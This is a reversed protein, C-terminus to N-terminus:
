ASFVHISFLFIIKLTWKNPGYQPWILARNQNNRCYIQKYIGSIAWIKMLKGNDLGYQTWTQALDHSNEVIDKSTSAQFPEFKWQLTMCVWYLVVRYNEIFQSWILALTPGYQPWIKPIELINKSRSGQFQEFKWQLTM